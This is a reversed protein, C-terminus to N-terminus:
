CNDIICLVDHSNEMVGVGGCGSLNFTPARASGFCGQGKNSSADGRNRPAARVVRDTKEERGAGLQFRDVFRPHSSFDSRRRWPDM